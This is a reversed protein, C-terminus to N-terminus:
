FTNNYSSKYLDMGKLECYNTIKSPQGRLFDLKYQKPDYVQPYINTMVDRGKLLEALEQHIELSRHENQM